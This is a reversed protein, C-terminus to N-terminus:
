KIDKLHKNLFLNTIKLEQTFFVRFWIVTAGLVFAVVCAIIIYAAAERSILVVLSILSLAEIVSILRMLM